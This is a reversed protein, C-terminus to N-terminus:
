NGVLRFYCQSNRISNTYPSVAGPINTFSGTLAPGAQLNFGSNTWSLVITDTIKQMGLYARVSSSYKLMVYSGLADDHGTVFVNGSADVKVDAGPGFSQLSANYRNTWLSIGAPSYAITAIDGPPYLGTSYGTVFVNGSGDVAVAQVFDYGHLPGGYRNTWLPVGSSSYKITLYDYKTGVGESRGAVIVNGGNDLAVAVAQDDGHVTGDYHNTWQAAGSNSYKITAFDDSARGAVIVNGAKDLAMAFPGGTMGAPGYHNTWLAAGGGSYGLTVWDDGSVGTVFVNGGDDTSAAYAYNDTDGGGNFVNTWLPVGSSSYKFTIYDHGSNVGASYGAVFVNGNHDIAIGTGGDGTNAAGNYRNVWLRDGNSSYKITAFDSQFNPGDSAGTVIVSGDTDLVLGSAYDDGPFAGFYRDSWINSGAGSFKLTQYDDFGAGDNVAGILFIDGNTNLAMKYGGDTWATWLLVGGQGHSHARMLILGSFLLAATFINKTMHKVFNMRECCYERGNKDM